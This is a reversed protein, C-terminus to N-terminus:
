PLDKKNNVIGSFKFVLFDDNSMRLIISRNIKGLDDKPNYNLTFSLKSNPNISRKKLNVQTCGCSKSIDVIEIKNSSSNHITFPISQITTNSITGIDINNRELSISGSKSNVQTNCSILLLILFSLFLKNKM